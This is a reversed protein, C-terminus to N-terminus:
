GYIKILGLAVQGALNKGERAPGRPIVIKIFNGIGLVHFQRAEVATVNEASGAHRYPCDNFGGAIADGVYVQCEPISRDEKSMM